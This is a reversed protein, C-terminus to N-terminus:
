KLGPKLTGLNGEGLNKGWKSLGRENVEEKGSTRGEKRPKEENGAGEGEEGKRVCAVTVTTKM